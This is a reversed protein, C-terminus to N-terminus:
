HRRWPKSEDAQLEVLLRDFHDKNFRSTAKRRPKRGAWVAAVAIFITCTIAATIAHWLTM